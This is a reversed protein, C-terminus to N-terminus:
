HAAKEDSAKVDKLLDSVWVSFADDMSTGWSRVLAQYRPLDGTRLFGLMQEVKERENEMMFRVSMYGWFYVRSGGGNMEYSTDFLESLKYKGLEKKVTKFARPYSDRKAVYEGVGESWWVTHPLLPAPKPCFEPGSHSDHLAVCFDGYTNFRGDLYHVYEHRLNRIYDKEQYAVFNAENGPQDPLGELYMGGNDTPMNFHKAAYVSYVDKNEYVNVTLTTNGDHKVPKGKTNFLKHFYAEQESLMDCTEVQKAETLAKSRVTITPSCVKINPLIVDISEDQKENSMSAASYGAVCLMSTAFILKFRIKM